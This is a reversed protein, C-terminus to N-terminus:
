SHVGNIAAAAIEMKIGDIIARIENEKNIEMNHVDEEDYFDFISSSPEHYIIYQSRDKAQDDSMLLSMKGLIPKAKNIEDLIREPLYDGDQMASEITSVLELFIKLKPYSGSAKKAIVANGAITDLVSSM